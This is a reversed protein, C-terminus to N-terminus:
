NHAFAWIISQAHAPHHSAMCKAFTQLYKKVQCPGILLILVINVHLALKIAEVCASLLLQKLRVSNVTIKHVSWSRVM